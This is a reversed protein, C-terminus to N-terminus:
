SSRHRVRDREIVRIKSALEEPLLEGNEEIEKLRSRLSNSNYKPEVLDMTEPHRALETILEEPKVGEAPGYFKEVTRYLTLGSDTRVNQLGADGMAELLEEEVAAIQQGLDKEDTAAKKKRHVLVEFQAALEGLSAM